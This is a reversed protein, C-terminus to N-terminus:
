TRENFRGRQFDYAMEFTAGSPGFRNLGIKCYTDPSEVERDLTLIFGTDCLFEQSYRTMGEESLQSGGWLAFGEEACLNASESSVREMERVRDRERKSRLKQFYDFFVVDYGKEAHASRVIPFVDEIYPGTDTIDTFDMFFWNCIEEYRNKWESGVGAADAEEQTEYGTRQRMMRCKIDTKTMDGFLCYLVKHEDRAAKLALQAMFSTKGVKYKAGAIAMQGKRVGGGKIRTDIAKIGTAIGPVTTQVQIEHFATVSAKPRTVGRMMEIAKERREAVSLEVDRVVKESIESCTADLSRLVSLDKVIDAYHKANHASPVADMMQVLYLLGGYKEELDEGMVEPVTVLDIARGRDIMTCFTTFFVRHTPHYFDSEKLVSRVIGAAKESLMM